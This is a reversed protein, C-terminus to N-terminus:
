LGSGLAPQLEAYEEATMTVQRIYKDAVPNLPSHWPSRVLPCGPVSIDWHEEVVMRGQDIPLARRSILGPPFDAIKM